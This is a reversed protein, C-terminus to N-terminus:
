FYARLFELKTVLSVVQEGSRQPRLSLDNL